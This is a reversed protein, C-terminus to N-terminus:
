SLALILTVTVLGNHLGHAVMCPIVTGRWERILAFGFALAMLLPVAVLGQPHIVAFIFSTVLGSVLISLARGWSASAERLHRYLVGRFMTEEVVPAVLCALLVVQVAGWWNGEALIQVVPHVPQGLPLFDGGKGGLWNQLQVLIFFVVAGVLLLPLTMAYGAVAMIPELVPGRGWNWGLDLRVQRWSVGRLRPWVLALLSCFGALGQVLLHSDGAPVFLVGINLALFVAMWLAFTEAYIGGYPTGSRLGGRWTGTLFVILALVLGVFGALCLLGLGLIEALFVVAFRQAPWLVAERAKPDPDEAPHLALKGFWGLEDQLLKREAASLSPAGWRKRAYDSYLRTLISKIVAQEPTLGIERQAGKDGLRELLKQAKAPGSLEGELVVYCFRRDAPGNDFVREVDKTMTKRLSDPMGVFAKGQLEMVILDTRRGGSESRVEWRVFQLLSVTVVLILVWAVVPHGKKRLEDEVPLVTNPLEFSDEWPTVSFHEVNEGGKTSFWPAPVACLSM